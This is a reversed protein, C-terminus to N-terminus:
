PCNPGVGSLPPNAIANTVDALEQLVQGRGVRDIQIVRATSVQGTTARNGRDDCYLVVVPTPTACAGPGATRPYGNPGYSVNGCSASLQITGGPAASRMLVTENADVARNGDTADTLIPAQTVPNLNGNEDVWVIFGRTGSNAVPNPSCTPTAANPNDSLCLTVPVQRKVAEARAMLLGTVLNNAAAVNANNRQFEMMNPVGIGIVIGVVLLTILLEWLTFGNQKPANM